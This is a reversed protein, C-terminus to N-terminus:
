YYKEIIKQVPHFIDVEIDYWAHDTLYLEAQAKSINLQYRVSDVNNEDWAFAELADELNWLGKIFDRIIENKDYASFSKDEVDSISLLGNNPNTYYDINQCVDKIENKIM